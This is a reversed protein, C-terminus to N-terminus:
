IPEFSTQPTSCVPCFEPPENEQVFGCNVCVWVDVDPIIYENIDLNDAFKRFIHSHRKEAVAINRFMTAIEGFGEEDAIAAFEPYITSWEDEEGAAALLLNELTTGLRSTSFTTTIEIDREAILSFFCKAHEKEQEAAEIFFKSVKDLGDKHAIESYYTYKNRVQSEGVFALLLNKETRTGKLSEM